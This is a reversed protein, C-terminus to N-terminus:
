PSFCAPLHLFFEPSCPSPRNWYRTLSLRDRQFMQASVQFCYLAPSCVGRLVLKLFCELLHLLGSALAQRDCALISLLGTLSFDLSSTPSSSVAQSLPHWRLSQLDACPSHPSFGSHDSMTAPESQSSPQSSVSGPQTPTFASVTDLQATITSIWM